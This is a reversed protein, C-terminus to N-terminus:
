SQSSKLFSELAKREANVRKADQELIALFLDYHHKSMAEFDSGSLGQYAPVAHCFVDHDMSVLQNPIELPIRCLFEIGEFPCPQVVLHIHELRGLKELDPEFRKVDQDQIFCLLSWRLHSKEFYELDLMAEEFSAKSM